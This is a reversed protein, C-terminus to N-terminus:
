GIRAPVRVASLDIQHVHDGSAADDGFPRTKGEAVAKGSADVVRWPLPAKADDSLIAWKATDPSLRDPQSAGGAATVGRALWALPLLLAWAKSM